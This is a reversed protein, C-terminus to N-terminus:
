PKYQDEIHPPVEYTRKSSAAGVYGDAFAASSYMGSAGKSPASASVVKEHDAPVATKTEQIEKEM